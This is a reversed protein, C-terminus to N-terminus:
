NFPSESKQGVPVSIEQIVPEKNSDVLSDEGIGLPGFGSSVVTEDALSAGPTKGFTEWYGGVITEFKGSEVMGDVTNIRYYGGLGLNKIMDIQQRRGATGLGAFTPNIYVLQGPEFYNNGVMSMKMKYIERADRAGAAAIKYAQVSPQSIKEFTINKMLGKNAGIYIHHIGKAIDRTRNATLFSPVYSNAFLVYYEYTHQHGAMNLYSEEWTGGFAKETWSPHFVNNPVRDSKQLSENITIPLDSIKRKTLLTKLGLNSQANKSGYYCQEGLAGFVLGEILRKFFSDFTISDQLKLIYNTRFWSNFYRASIPIDALNIFMNTTIEDSMGALLPHEYRMPAFVIKKEDDGRQKAFEPNDKIHKILQDVLDGLYFYELIMVDAPEGKRRSRTAASPDKEDEDYAGELITVQEAEEAMAEKMKEQDILGHGMNTEDVSKKLLNDNNKGYKDHLSNSGDRYDPDGVGLVEGFGQQIREDATLADESGKDLSARALSRAEWQKNQEKLEEDSLGSDGVKHEVYYPQRAKNAEARTLQGAALEGLESRAMRIRHLIPDMAKFLRQYALGRRSARIRQLKFQLIYL